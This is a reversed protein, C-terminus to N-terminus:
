KISVLKAMVLLNYRYYKQYYKSDMSCTQLILIKDNANVSVGTDYESKSKYKQLAANWAEDSYRTKYFYELEESNKDTAAAVYVSFIQYTYTKGNYKITIYKNSNYFSKNNHYKQLAQFPGNGSKSSHAYVIVKRSSFDTRYDIYPVGIGNKEGNIGHNLYYNDGNKDKMLDKNLINGIIIRNGSSTTQTQKPTTQTTTKKQTTSQKAKATTQTTTKKQATAQAKKLAEQKKKVEKKKAAEKEEIIKEQEKTLEITSSVNVKNAKTYFVEETNITPITFFIAITFILLSIKATRWKLFNNM